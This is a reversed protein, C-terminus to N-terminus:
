KKVNNVNNDTNYSYGYGYGYGYGYKYRGTYGYIGKNSSIDNLLLSIGTIGNAKADSLTNELIHKITKNHRVLVVTIDAIAALSFTDSVAGLPASDVIIYDFKKRLETFLENTKVSSALEAPNPPVPGATIISLNAYGSEQIIEEITNQGILYTSVGIEDKLNFDNYIKPKRLDFGVLVTRKGSLSYASALNISAFTKGEAPMSSTILIIPSKTEKTFFQLRTRFSRFTEAVQSKPDDLVVTQYNRMSHIINGAVPLDTVKKVDEESTIKNNFANISVLITGPILLGIVLSLVYNRMPKPSVPKRIIAQDIIENDAINSAKTIQAEARRQLLYTYINDNLKFKREIGLLERETQPLKRVEAMLAELRNNVDKIALSNNNLLNRTNEELRLKTNKIQAELTRLYPNVGEGAGTMATKQDAMKNLELVLSNLSPDEVGMVSPAVIDGAERNRALYDVLYRFYDDKMKLVSKQNDLEKTQEFLQQSQFSLDLVKNNKRYDQLTVGTINLSDSISTLQSDIFDITNTAVQNKKDISRQLYTEMHKNIFLQAKAPCVANIELSVMSADQDVSKLDLLESWIDVLNAYSNFSFYWKGPKANGNKQEGGRPLVTFSYGDGELKEGYTFDKKINIKEPGDSSKETLFNYLTVKEGTVDSEMKVSGNGQIEIIFDVGLPQPKSYDPLVIFPVENLMEQPGLIKDKYYSVSFDLSHLTKSILSQSKLILIQNQFNKYDPSMGMGAMMDSGGFMSGIGSSGSKNDILISATVRYVKVAHKNILYATGVSLFLALAFWQLNGLFIYFYKMLDIDDSHQPRQMPRNLQQPPFNQNM